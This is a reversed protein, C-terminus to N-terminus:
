GQMLREGQDRESERVVGVGSALVQWSAMGGTLTPAAGHSLARDIRRRVEPEHAPETAFLIRVQVAGDERDTRTHHPALPCPPEHRWDGCLAVTVAAGVADPDEAPDMRLLADQAYLQKM